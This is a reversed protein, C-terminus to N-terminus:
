TSFCLLNLFRQSARVSPLIGCCPGAWLFFVLTEGFTAVCAFAISSQKSGVLTLRLEVLLTARASCTQHGVSRRAACLVTSSRAIKTRRRPQRCASMGLARAIATAAAVM